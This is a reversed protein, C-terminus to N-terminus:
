EERVDVKIRKKTLTFYAAALCTSLCICLYLLHLSLYVSLVPFLLSHTFPKGGSGWRGREREWGGKEEMNTM